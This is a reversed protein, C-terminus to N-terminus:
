AAREVLFMRGGDPMGSARYHGLPEARLRHRQLFEHFARQQGDEGSHRWDDCVLVAAPGIAPAIFELATRSSSYLDCDLMIVGARDIGHERRTDDTLTDDFWGKVLRVREVDVGGRRMNERAEEVTCAFMGASWREPNIKEAEPPLGEFSDFGFLRMQEIGAARRARDACTMTGGAYVGFELYDGVEDSGLRGRLLNIAETLNQELEAASVHATADGASRHLAYVRSEFRGSFRAPMRAVLARILKTLGLQKAASMAGKVLRRRM